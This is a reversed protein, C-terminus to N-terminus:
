ARSALALTLQLVSASIVFDRPMFRGATVQMAQNPRQYDLVFCM